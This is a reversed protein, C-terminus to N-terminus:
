LTVYVTSGRVAEGAEAIAVAEAHPRGGEATWGRGIVRGDKVAIAGVAPNPRSLPRGRMALSAAAQLWRRDQSSAKNAQTM